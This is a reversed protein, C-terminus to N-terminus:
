DEDPRFIGRATCGDCVPRASELDGLPVPSERKPYMCAVDYVPLGRGRAVATVRRFTCRRLPAVPSIALPIQPAHAREILAM